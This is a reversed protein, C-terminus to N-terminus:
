SSQNLTAISAAAASAANWRVSNADLAAFQRKLGATYSTLRLQMRDIQETMTRSQKDLSDIRSRVAGNTDTVLSDVVDTFSKMAGVSGTTSDNVFLKSVGTPDAALAADLKTSDLTLTGDNGLTVGVSGLTTYRGTTGAVASALITRLRDQSGRMSRDAALVPNTAKVSGFGTATKTAAVVDNYATVFTQIKTKLAASDGAVTVRAASTTTRTIALTVGNIVGTIQNTPRSVTVGSPGDIRVSANLPSQYTNGPVALGLTFGSEGFAVTNASGTDMGRVQLRYNSGDYLVSAQVRAGSGSIKTAIDSLTDTNAITVNVAANAGVTITLTGAMNLATSQSGQTNSWTRQERAVALVDIDYAGAAAGGNASAVVATDSSTAAFSTFGDRTSLARAATQLASLKTSFQSITTKASNVQRQRAELQTIPTREVETLTSVLNEVDLGSGLGAISIPM